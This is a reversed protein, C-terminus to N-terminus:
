ENECDVDLLSADTAAIIKVHAGDAANIIQESIADFYRRKMSFLRCIVM